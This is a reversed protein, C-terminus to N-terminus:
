RKQKALAKAKNPHPKGNEVFYKFEAAIEAAMNTMKKKMMGRMMAGMMGGTRMEMRMVLKTKGDATPTLKWNNSMFKVMKPMGERVEYALSHDSDSYHTLKEKIKGMGTIDCGRETCTSGNLSRSDNAQSHKLSSAWVHANAFDRGLVQWAKEIPADVIIEQTIFTTKAEAFLGNTLFALM